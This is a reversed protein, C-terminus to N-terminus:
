TTIGQIESNSLKRPYYTIRRLHGNWFELGGGSLAGINMTTQGAPVAGSTDTVVSGGNITASFDNAKYTGAIKFITNASASGPSLDATAGGSVVVTFRPSSASGSWIWLRLKNNTTGDNIDVLNSNSSVPINSRVAEAYITGESANYWPSLTNVSAVDASRTASATTTAIYSTPFAGAELQAGWIYVGSTGNGTSTCVIRVNPTTAGTASGLGTFILRYWGNSCTVVSSVGVTDSGSLTGTSTDLIKSGHFTNAKNYFQIGISTLGATKLFVSFTYTTSDALSSLDQRILGDTAANNPILTDATLAGSPATATNAADTSNSNTWTTTIDESQLILNTRQEEVLFGRAALTSPDYDFRAADTTATQLTGTADFYTGSSARTFTIIESFTKTVLPM